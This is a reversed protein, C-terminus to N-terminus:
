FQFYGAKETELRNGITAAGEGRKATAQHCKHDDASGRKPITTLIAFKSSISFYNPRALWYQLRESKQRLM